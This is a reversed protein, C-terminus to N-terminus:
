TRPPVPESIMALGRQEIDGALLDPTVKLFAQVHPTRLHGDLGERSRWNEYVVWEDANDISRHLDYNLNGPEARTPGILSLLAEGLAEAQGSRARFVAINTFQSMVGPSASDTEFM